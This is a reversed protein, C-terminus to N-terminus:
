KDTDEARAIREHNHHRTSCYKRTIPSVPLLPMDGPLQTDRPPARPLLSNSTMRGAPLHRSTCGRIANEAIQTCGAKGSIAAILLPPTIGFRGANEKIM